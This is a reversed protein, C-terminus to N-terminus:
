IINFFNRYSKDIYLSAVGTNFSKKEHHFYATLSFPLLLKLSLYVFLGVPWLSILM